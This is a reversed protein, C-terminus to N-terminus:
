AAGGGTAQGAGPSPLPPAPVGSTGAHHVHLSGNQVGYAHGHDTAKINQIWTRQDQPLASRTQTILENLEDAADPHEQLLEELQLQWQPVLSLRAREGDSARTVLAAGSHLHSVAAEQGAAGRRRFLRAAGACTAQWASTAMAAVITTAGIQALDTLPDV